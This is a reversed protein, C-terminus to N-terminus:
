INFNKFSLIASPRWTPFYEFHWLEGVLPGVSVWSPHDCGMMDEVHWGRNPQWPLPRQRAVACQVNQLQPRVRSVIKIFHPVCCCTLVAIVTVHNFILIKLIWFPPFKPLDPPRCSELWFDYSFEAAPLCGKPGDVVVHFFRFWEAIYGRPHLSTVPLVNVPKTHPFCTLIRFNPLKEYLFTSWM